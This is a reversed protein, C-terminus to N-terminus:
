KPNVGVESIPLQMQEKETSILVSPRTVSAIGWANKPKSLQISYSFPNGLERLTMNPTFLM